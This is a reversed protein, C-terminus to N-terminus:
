LPNLPLELVEKMAQMTPKDLEQSRVHKQWTILLKKYESARKVSTDIVHSVFYDIEKEDLVTMEHLLMDRKNDFETGDDAIWREVAKGM